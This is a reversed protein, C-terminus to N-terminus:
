APRRLGEELRAFLAAAVKLQRDLPPTRGAGEVTAQLIYGDALATVAQALEGPSGGVIRGANQGDIVASVFYGFCKNRALEARRRWEISKADRRAISRSGPEREARAAWLDPHHMARHLNRRTLGFEVYCLALASVASPASPRLPSQSTAERALEEELLSFGRETVAALLGAEDGFRSVPGGYSVGAARAVQRLTVDGWGRQEVMRVAENVLREGLGVMPGPM